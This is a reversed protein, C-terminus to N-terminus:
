PESPAGAFAAPDTLMFMHGHD